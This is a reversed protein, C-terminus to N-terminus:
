WPAGGGESTRLRWSLPFNEVLGTKMERLDLGGSLWDLVTQIRFERTDLEGKKITLYHIGIDTERLKDEMYLYAIWAIVELSQTTIFTQIPKTRVIAVIEQLLKGLTAPHMFLEPDEWLFLGPHDEDVMEALAILAALVKFAHRAGDGYQAIEVPYKGQELIYGTWKGQPGPRISVKSGELEQFVRGLSDAIKEEWGQIKMWTERAFSEVFPETATHFDIFLVHNPDPLTGEEVWIGLFNSESLYETEEEKEKEFPPHRHVWHSDWIFTWRNDGSIQIETLRSPPKIFNRQPNYLSFFGVLHKDQEDFSEIGYEPRELLIHFYKSPFRPPMKEIEFALNGGEDLLVRYGAIATPEYEHRKRLRPLPAHHLFDRKLSVTPAANDQISSDEPLNDDERERPANTDKPNESQSTGEEKRTTGKFEFGDGVIEVKRGSVGSLYLMELISTKGSNNPGILLNLRGFDEVAGERIGRFRHILLRKIGLSM